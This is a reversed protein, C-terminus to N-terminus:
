LEKDWRPGDRFAISDATAVDIDAVLIKQPSGTADLVFESDRRAQWFAGVHEACSVLVDFLVEDAQQGDRHTRGFLQETQMGNAPMSVILNRHWAQLNRGTSNSAISAVLAHGPKHSEIMCGNANRGKRGYYSLGSVSSLREAFCTHESWVIGCNNRAWKACFDVVSDDIWRPETNPEFDDRVALWEVCESSNGFRQRVQLESDLKRSHRLTRRVFAAWTKRAELWYRPPRPNWIYYFGLALERAHRFMALGDAIPWGDPTEWRYRLRAFAEDVAKSAPPEVGRVRISADIPTEKTAVVGPTEVLRRRFALRATRRPNGLWAAREDDNCLVMLAGPNARRVQGKREDLADAWLQLDGHRQPIPAAAPAHSWKLIHAFDLISRKTVTGSMGVFKTDPKNAMYRRVRRTVAASPNKLRHVEDAIILDPEYADLAEAAQVRGLWEYSVVRIWPPLRWHLRLVAEDRKTKDVLSAPVLLLPRVSFAVVPALLSILTKGSGVRLPGFLGGITGIECLAVAQEARLRMTGRPTKLIETLEDALNDAIDDWLRRPLREIRRLEDNLRVVGVGAQEAAQTFLDPVRPKTKPRSTNNSRQLNSPLFVSRDCRRTEATAQASTFGISNTCAM